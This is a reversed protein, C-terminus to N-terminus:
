LLTKLPELKPNKNLKLPIYIAKQVEDKDADDQNKNLKLPIYIHNPICVSLIYGYNKNLKLPIYIRIGVM